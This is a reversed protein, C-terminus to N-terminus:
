GAMTGNAVAASVARFITSNDGAAYIGEVTTKQFNDVQILGHETMECGLAAPLDCHQTRLPHNYLAKLHHSSSDELKLASLHGDTHMVEVIPSEIIKIGLEKLKQAPNAEITSPGNTFVTLKDTWNSILHAVDVAIDGNLLIGTDHGKVEYGHCYPCHLISKGWCEAFGKIDPMEDIVGTAFLLKKSQYTEGAETTITFGKSSKSAKVAKGELWEVTPYLLVQERALKAIDAPAAGDHTIFNHSQPTFRNCPKGSDIILVNRLARGLAMAASLGAYSGGVIIVHYQQMPVFNDNKAVINCFCILCGM